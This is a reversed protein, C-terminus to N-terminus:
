QRSWNQFQTVIIFYTVTTSTMSVLLSEDLSFLNYVTFETKGSDLYNSFKYLRDVIEPNETVQLYDSVVQGTKRSESMTNSVNTTLVILLIVYLIVHLVSYIIDYVASDYKTLISVELAYFINFIVIFFINISNLLMPLSYFSSVERSVQRLSSHLLRLDSLKKKAEMTNSGKRAITVKLRAEEVMDSLSNNVFQFYQRLLLLIISYQILLSCNISYCVFERVLYCIQAASRFPWTTFILCCFLAYILFLTTANKVSLIEGNPENMANALYRIDNASSLVKIIKKQNFSYILLTIISALAFRVHETMYLVTVKFHDLKLNLKLEQHFIISSLAVITCILFTNYIISYTSTTFKWHKINKNDSTAEIKCNVTAVGSLKFLYLALKAVFIKNSSFNTFYKM